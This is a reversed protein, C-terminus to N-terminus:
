HPSSLRRNLLRQFFAQPEPQALYHRYAKVAFVEPALQLFTRSIQREHQFAPNDFL